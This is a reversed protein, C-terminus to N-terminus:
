FIVSRDKGKTHLDEFQGAQRHIIEPHMGREGRLWMGAQGTPGGVSLVPVVEYVISYFFSKKAPRITPLRQRLERAFHQM